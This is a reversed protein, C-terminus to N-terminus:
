VISLAVFLGKISLTIITITMISGAIMCLTKISLTTISLAMNFILTPRKQRLNYCYLVTTPCSRRYFIQSM